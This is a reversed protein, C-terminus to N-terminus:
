LGGKNREDSQEVTTEGGISTQAAIPPAQGTTPETMFNDVIMADEGRM